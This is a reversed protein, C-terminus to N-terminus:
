SPLASGRYVLGWWCTNPELCRMSDPCSEWALCQEADQVLALPHSSFAGSDPCAGPLSTKGVVGFLM